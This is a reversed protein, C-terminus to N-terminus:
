PGTGDAANLLFFTVTLPTLNTATGTSAVLLKTGLEAAQLSTSAFLPSSAFQRFWLQKGSTDLKAVFDTAISPPTSSGNAYTNNYKGAVYVADAGV